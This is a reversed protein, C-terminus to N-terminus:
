IKGELESKKTEAQSYQQQLAINESQLRLKEQQNQETQALLEEQKLIQQDLAQISKALESYKESAETIQKYNISQLFTKLFRIKKTNEQEELSLKEREKLFAENQEWNALTLKCEEIQNLIQSSSIQQEIQQKQALLQQKEQERQEFHQKNIV